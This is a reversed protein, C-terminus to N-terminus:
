DMYTRGTLYDRWEQLYDASVPQSVSSSKEPKSVPFVYHTDIHSFGKHQICSACKGCSDGNQRDTCHVYQAFARALALKGTGSPGELLLAHPIKGSDAMARLRDKISDHVPIDAFRM